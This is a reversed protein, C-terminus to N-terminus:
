DLKYKVVNNGLPLPFLEAMIYINGFFVPRKPGNEKNMKWITPFAM